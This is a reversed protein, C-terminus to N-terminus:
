LDGLIGLADALMGSISLNAGSMKEVTSKYFILMDTARDMASQVSKIQINLVDGTLRANDDDWFQFMKERLEKMTDLHQQLQAIYGELETIKAQYQAQSYKVMISM